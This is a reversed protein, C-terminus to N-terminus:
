EEGRGRQEELEARRNVDIRGREQKEVIRGRYEAIKSNEGRSM